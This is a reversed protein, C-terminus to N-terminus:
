IYYYISTFMGKQIEERERKLNNITEAFPSDEDIEMEVNPLDTSVVTAM